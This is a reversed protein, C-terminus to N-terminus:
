RYEQSEKWEQFYRYREPLKGKLPSENWLAQVQAATVDTALVLPNSNPHDGGNWYRLALAEGWPPIADVPYEIFGGFSRGQLPFVEIYVTKSSEMGPIAFPSDSVDMSFGVALPGTSLAARRRAVLTLLVALGIAAGGVYILVTPNTSLSIPLLAHAYVLRAVRGISVALVCCCIGIPLWFRTWEYKLSGYKYAHRLFSMGLFLFPAFSLYTMFFMMFFVSDDPAKGVPTVAGLMLAGLILVAFSAWGVKVANAASKYAWDSLGM